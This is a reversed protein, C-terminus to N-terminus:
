NSLKFVHCRQDTDDLDFKFRINDGIKFFNSKCVYIWEHGLATKTTDNPDLVTLTEKNRRDGCVILYDILHDKLFPAFNPPLNQM